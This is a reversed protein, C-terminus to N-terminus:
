AQPKKMQSVNMQSVYHSGGKWYLFAGVLTTSLSLLLAYRISSVGYGSIADSILGVLTPGLGMGLLNFSLLLLAAAQTRSHSPVINQVAAYTPGIWFGAFVSSVAMFLIAVPITKGFLTFVSGEPWLLFAIQLPLSILIGLMPLRLQWVVDKAAMRDCIYGGLVTGLGGGFAGILGLYLGAEILSIEHVRILFSPSWVGFGYGSIATFGVALAIYPFAPVALINKIGQMFGEPMLPGSDKVPERVTFKLLLALFIGPIGFVFFVMRWGYMDAIIAGGFLGVLVGINPATSLVGLAFSRKEPPFYDAVLSQSPPTGGAEGVGVGIRLLALQWFNVAMGCLATVLSWVSMSISLVNTRSWSDALKAVPVGLTAYFLAFAFGTLFGMQTDTAGFEAKIPELLITMVQRDVFNLLYGM